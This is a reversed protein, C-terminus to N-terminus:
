DTKFGIKEDSEGDHKSLGEIARWVKKFEKDSKNSQKLMFNRVEHLQKLINQHSTIANKLRVFAKVVEISIKIARKSRLVSALMVAGHETFVFPMKRRGGWSSTVIQSMLNRYENLTLQFMFEDPFRDINRQVAQNLIKTEVGYIRALDEDLMVKQGRIFYISNHINKDNM